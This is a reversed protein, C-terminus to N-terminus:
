QVVTIHTVQNELSQASQEPIQQIFGLFTTLHNRFQEVLHKLTSNRRGNAEAGACVVHLLYSSPQKGGFSCPGTRNTQNVAGKDLFSDDSGARSSRRQHSSLQREREQLRELGGQEPVVHQLEGEVPRQDEGQGEIHLPLHTAARSFVLRLCSAPQVRPLTM